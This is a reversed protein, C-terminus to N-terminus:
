AGAGPAPALVFPAAPGHEYTEKRPRPLGAALMYTPLPWLRELDRREEDPTQQRRDVHACSRDGVEHSAVRSVGIRGGYEGRALMAPLTVVEVAAPPAARALAAEVLQQGVGRRRVRATVALWGVRYRPPHASWLLRGLLGAGADAEDERVCVAQGREVERALAVEFAPQSVMPGFLPEVERALLRWAPLADLTALVVSPM